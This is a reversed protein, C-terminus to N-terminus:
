GVCMSRGIRGSRNSGLFNVLEQSSKLMLSLVKRALGTKKLCSHWRWVRAGHDEMVKSIVAFSLHWPIDLNFPPNGSAVYCPDDLVKSSPPNIRQKFIWSRM